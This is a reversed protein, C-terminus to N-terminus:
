PAAAQAAVGAVVRGVGGVVVLNDDRVAGIVGTVDESPVGNVTLAGVCSRHNAADVIEVTIGVGHVAFDVSVVCREVVTEGEVGGGAVRENIDVVNAGVRSNSDGAFITAQEGDAGVGEHLLGACEIIAVAFM